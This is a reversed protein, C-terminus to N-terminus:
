KEVIVKRLKSKIIPLTSSEDDIYINYESLKAISEGIRTYDDDTLLGKQINSMSIGAETSLMRDVISQSTM